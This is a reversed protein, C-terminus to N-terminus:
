TWFVSVSTGAGIESTLKLEAGIENAREAMIRLGHHGTKVVETDFGCGNDSISMAIAEDPHNVLEIEISTADAHWIANNLSEQAIRQLQATVNVPLFGDGEVRLSVKAPSRNRVSEVMANLTQGLTRNQAAAPRMDLLLTRMEDLAGHLM